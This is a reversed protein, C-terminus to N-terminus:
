IAIKYVLYIITEDSVNVLIASEKPITLINKCKENVKRRKQTIIRTYLFAKYTKFQSKLSM